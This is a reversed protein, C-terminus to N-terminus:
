YQKIMTKLQEPSASEPNFDEMSKDLTKTSRMSKARERHLMTNMRTLTSKLQQNDGKENDLLQKNAGHIVSIMDEDSKGEAIM